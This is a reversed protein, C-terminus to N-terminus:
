VIITCQRVQAVWKSFTYLSKENKTLLRSIWSTDYQYGHQKLENTLRELEEYIENSQPHSRDCTCSIKVVVKGNVVTWALGTLKKLGSQNKKMRINSATTLDSALAYTNALLVKASTAYIEQDKLYPEIRDYM